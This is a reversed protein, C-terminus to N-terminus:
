ATKKEPDIRTNQDIRVFIRVFHLFIRRLLLSISTRIGYLFINGFIHSVIFSNVFRIVMASIVGPGMATFEAVKTPIRMAPGMPATIAVNPQIRGDQKM